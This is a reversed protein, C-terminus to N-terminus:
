TRLGLERAFRRRAKGGKATVAYLVRQSAEPTPASTRKVWKQAHARRLMVYVSPRPMETQAALDTPSLGRGGGRQQLEYLLKAELASLGAVRRTYPKM